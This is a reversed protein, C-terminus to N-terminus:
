DYRVWDDRLMTSRVGAAAAAFEPRALLNSPLALLRAASEAVVDATRRSALLVAVEGVVDGARDLRAVIGQQSQVVLVGELLLYIEAAAADGERILLEGPALELLAGCDVISAVTDPALGAFPGHQGLTAALRGKLAPDGNGTLDTRKM